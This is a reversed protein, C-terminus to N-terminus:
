EEGSQLRNSREMSAVIQDMDYAVAAHNEGSPYRRRTDSRFIRRYLWIMNLRTSQQKHLQVDCTPHQAPSAVTTKEEAENRRAGFASSSSLLRSSMLIDIVGSPLAQARRMCM